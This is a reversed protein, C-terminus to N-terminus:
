EYKLAILPDVQTARRAPFYSALFAVLGLVLITGGFTIPDAAGVGYLLSTLLTMLGLAVVVGIGIGIGALRMGQRVIMKNIHTARAGLAMRIGIEHTRQTVSYSIVSYIGIAALVLAIVSFIGLLYTSFRNLALSQAMIENMTMVNNISQDKDIASIQQNAPMILGVPDTASRIVLSLDRAPNQLYPVYVEASPPAQLSTHKINGVVGVIQLWPLPQGNPNVRRLRQGVPDQGGFYRRVMMENVVAVGTVGEKDQENLVRGKKVPIGLTAFFDPSVIRYNAIPGNAGPETRGEIEFGRVRNSGSLPLHSTLGVHQVGPLNKLREVAQTYFNNVQADQAYKGPPLSIEMTLLNNTDFGPNVNLLRTFSRILLGAGVLLVVSLAVEAVVLASRLKRGGSSGSTGRGGEKLMENLDPKSINLAPALGFFVGTLLSILLTFGLMWGDIGIGHSLLLSTSIGPPLGSVLFRVGWLALLLGLVGGMLGLLVSETLLQRIIRTRGAGLAARIAMEKQRSVARALLLNAVNACAILLVFFVAGLLMMLAPRVPGILQEHLSVLSVNVKANAEPYQQELQRAINTMDGQAQQMSVGPKLRALVILNGSSRRQAEEPPFSLPSWVDAPGYFEFDPPMIGVVTYSRGNLMLTKNVLSPDSGFRRQWLGHSVLLVNERGPQEEEPLFVRGQMPKVGLLPFLAPSVQFGRVLEPRDGASLNANWFNLAAMQTFSQNQSRWDIFNAPAAEHEAYAALVLEDPREYPLPRLTLTNVLSFIATNAGIGLALALVAAFTTGPSRWLVRLGYSLDQMLSRM